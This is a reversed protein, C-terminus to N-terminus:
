SSKLISESDCKSKRLDEKTFVASLAGIAMVVLLMTAVIISQWRMQYKPKNDTFVLASVVIMITAVIQSIAYIAGSAISEPVPYSVECAFDIGSALIPIVTAGMLAGCLYLLPVMELELISM